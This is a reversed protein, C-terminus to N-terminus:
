GSRVRVLAGVDGFVFVIVGAPTGSERSARSSGCRLSLCEREDRGYGATCGKRAKGCVRRVGSEGCWVGRVSAVMRVASMLWARRRGATRGKGGVIGGPVGRGSRRREDLVAGCFESRVVLYLWAACSLDIKSIRASRNKVEPSVSLASGERSGRCRACRVLEKKAEEHRPPREPM